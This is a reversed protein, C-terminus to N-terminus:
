ANETGKIFDYYKQAAKLVEDTGSLPHVLGDDNLINTQMAFSLAKVKLDWELNIGNIKKELEKTLEDINM